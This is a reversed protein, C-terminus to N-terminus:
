GQRHLQGTIFVGPVLSPCAEKAPLVAVHQWGSNRPSNLATQLIESPSSLLFRYTTDGPDQGINKKGKSNKTQIWKSYNVMVTLIIVKRFEIFEKPSDSFGLTINPIM